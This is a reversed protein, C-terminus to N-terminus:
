PLSSANGHSPATILTQYNKDQGSAKLETEKSLSELGVYDLKLLVRASCRSGAPLPLVM